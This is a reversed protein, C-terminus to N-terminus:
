LLSHLLTRLWGEGAIGQIQFYDQYLQIKCPIGLSNSQAAQCQTQWAFRGHM